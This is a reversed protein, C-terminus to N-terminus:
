LKRNTQQKNYRHLARLHQTHRTDALTFHQRQENHLEELQLPTATKKWADQYYRPVPVIHGNHIAFSRWSAAHERATGGIGHPKCSMQLFPPVHKVFAKKLPDYKVDTLNRITDLKKTVYGAVYAIAADTAPTTYTYGLNWNEQIPHRLELASAGYLIAHYHPRDTQAGYEGCAFFRLRAPTHRRLRKLFLSLDRRSLTPPLHTDDYTLTTFTAHQHQQAEMHNRIAWARARATRCALCSGCPLLLHETGHPREKTLSVPRKGLANPKQTQWATLPQLCAM